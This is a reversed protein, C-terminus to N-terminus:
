HTQPLQIVEWATCLVYWLVVVVQNVIRNGHYHMPVHNRHNKKLEVSIIIGDFKM